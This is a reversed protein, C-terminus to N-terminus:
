YNVLYQQQIIGSQYSEVSHLSLNVMKHQGSFLPIGEGLLVPITTVIIKDILKHQLMIGNLVGGGVLWITHSSENKLRNVFLVPDSHVLHTNPSNLKALSKSFVYNQKEAYPFPIDFSLIQEFTKRGMLTVDISEYFKSYGYDNGEEEFQNLWDISGDNRAIFGDISIASYLILSSAKM